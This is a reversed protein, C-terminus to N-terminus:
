PLSATGPPPTVDPRSSSHAQSRQRGLGPLQSGQRSRHSLCLLGLGILYGSSPEPIPLFHHASIYDALQAGMERARVDDFSWHIGLYVRSRGNEVSAQSFSNFARVVGPLEDSTVEFYADDSGYFNKLSEFLAGGFSAHGSLYTPFPPTFPDITSGDPAVGGPAGLPAWDPDPVTGPNGDEDARRIGSIPRWFDYTFKSDWAVIGADAVSTSAMAFLRANESLSNGRDEAVTRLIGNYMRMPTGMGLRDYAWFLGIETQEAARTSSDLSGLAKVEEFAETYEQSTLAPMPPAMFRITSEIAFPRIEGWQPGWANQTPNVPDPEWRGVGGHPAYFVSNDFGDTARADVISSGVLEGYVVGQTKAPGDVIADLSTARERELLAHQDPYISSLVTYAAQVAAAEPSADLPAGGHSFMQRHRPLVGNVADYVALNMMAMSRSAMGPNQNRTDALLVDSAVRNWHVIADGQVGPCCVLACAVPLLLQVIRCYMNAESTRQATGLVKSERVRLMTLSMIM